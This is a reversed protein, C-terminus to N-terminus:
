ALSCDPSLDPRQSPVPSESLWFIATNGGIGVALTRVTLTTFGANERLMRAGTHFDESPLEWRHLV